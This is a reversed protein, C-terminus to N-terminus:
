RASPTAMLAKIGPLIKGALYEMFAGGATSVFGIGDLLDHEALASITDGGGAISRIEGSQTRLAIYEGVAKTSQDFPKHEFAGLPGNWLVTRSAGLIKQIAEISRPGLDFIAENQEINEIDTNRARTSNEISTSVCADVPLIINCNHTAARDLIELATEVHDTEVRSLGINFGQAALFTNGMSGGIVFNDVKRCLNKLVDIKTSIKSGGILATSPRRQGDVIEDIRSIETLLLRGAASPLVEPIGVISAHGRHSASFADNCYIDGWSALQRAFEPDNITEGPYFRLNELLSLGETLTVHSSDLIDPYFSVKKEVITELTSVLNRLSLDESYHGKPRGLHSAIIPHGGKSLILRLTPVIKSIRTVDTIKGNVMPVNIDARLLVRKGGIDMDDIGTLVTVM